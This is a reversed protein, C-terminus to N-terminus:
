TSKDLYKSERPSSESGVTENSATGNEACFFSGAMKLFSFEVCSGDSYQINPEKHFMVFNADHLDQFFQPAVAPTGHVEVQIQRIDVDGMFFILFILWDKYSRWECGTSACGTSATIPIRLTPVIFGAYASKVYIFVVATAKL